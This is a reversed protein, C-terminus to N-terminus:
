LVYIYPVSTLRKGRAGHRRKEVPVVAGPLAAEADEM